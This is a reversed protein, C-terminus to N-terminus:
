SVPIFGDPSRREHIHVIVRTDGAAGQAMTKLEDYLAKELAAEPQEGSPRSGFLEVLVDHGLSSGKGSIAMIVRSNAPRVDGPFMPASIGWFKVGILDAIIEETGLYGIGSRRLHSLYEPTCTVRMLLLSTTSESM